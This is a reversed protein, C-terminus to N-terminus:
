VISLALAYSTSFIGGIHSPSYSKVGWSFSLNGLCSDATPPSKCVSYWCISNHFIRANKKKLAFSPHTSVNILFKKIHLNRLISSSICTNGKLYMKNTVTHSLLPSCLSPRFDLNACLPAVCHPFTFILSCIFFLVAFYLVHETLFITLAYPFLVALNLSVKEKFFPSFV